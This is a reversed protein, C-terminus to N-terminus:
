IKEKYSIECSSILYGPYLEWKLTKFPVIIVNAKFKELRRCRCKGGLYEYEEDFNKKWEETLQLTEGNILISTCRSLIGEPAGKMVLFYGKNDERPHVSVQSIFLLSKSFDM